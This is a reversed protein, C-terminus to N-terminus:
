ISFEVVYAGALSVQNPQDTDDALDDDDLGFDSPKLDMEVGDDLDGSLSIM